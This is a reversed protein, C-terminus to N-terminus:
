KEILTLRDVDDGDIVTEYSLTGDVNVYQYVFRIGKNFYFIDTIEIKAYLEDDEIKHSHNPAYLKAYAYDGCHGHGPKAQNFFHLWCKSGKRIIM